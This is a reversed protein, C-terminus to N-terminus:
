IIRDGVGDRNCVNDNTYLEKVKAFQESWVLIDSNTIWQDCSGELNLEKLENTISEELAKCVNSTSINVLGRTWKSNTLEVYPTVESRNHEEILELFVSEMVSIIKTIDEEMFSNELKTSISAALKPLKSFEYSFWKMYGPYYKKNYLYVLRIINEIIRTLIIKGSIIQNRKYCLPILALDDLQKWCYLLKYKWIDENYYSFDKRIKTIEGIPDEFIKGRTLELLKQEPICLWELNNLYYQNTTYDRNNIGYQIRLYREVTTIAVHHISNHKDDTTVLVQFEENFVFRTKYGLYELPLEAKLMEDIEDGYKNYDEELLWLHCRPGWEHDRSLEDDNGLVDSGYGILGAGYKNKLMPFHKEILKKVVNFYFLESLELGKM